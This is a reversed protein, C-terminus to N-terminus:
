DGPLSSEEKNEDAPSEGNPETSHSGEKLFSGGEKGVGDDFSGEPSRNKKGEPSRNGKPSTSTAEPEAIQDETNDKLSGLQGLQKESLRHLPNLSSMM